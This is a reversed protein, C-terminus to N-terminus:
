VGLPESAGSWGDGPYGMDTVFKVPLPRIDADVQNDIFMGPPLMNYRTTPSLAEEITIGKKDIYGSTQFGPNDLVETNPSDRFSGDGDWQRNVTKKIGAPESARGKFNRLPVNGKM